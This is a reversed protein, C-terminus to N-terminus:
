CLSVVSVADNDISKLTDEYSLKVGNTTSGAPPAEPVVCDCILVAFTTTLRVVRQGNIGGSM